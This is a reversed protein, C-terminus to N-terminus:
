RVGRHITEARARDEENQYQPTEYRPRRDDPGRQATEQWAQDTSWQFPLMTVSGPTTLSSFSELAQLLIERQLEPQHPKGTTHGLPYDLFAARPPHVARTIDLASSMCLTSLGAAEAHRAILGVSQHCM